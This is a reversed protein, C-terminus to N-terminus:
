FPFEAVPEFVIPREKRPATEEGLPVYELREITETIELKNTHRNIIVLKGGRVLEKSIEKKILKKLKLPYSGAFYDEGTYCGIFEFRKPDMHKLDKLDTKPSGYMIMIIRPKFSLIGYYLTLALKHTSTTIVILRTVM